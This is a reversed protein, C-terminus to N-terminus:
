RFNLYPPHNQFPQRFGALGTIPLHDPARPGRAQPPPRDAFSHKALALLRPQRASLFTQGGTLFASRCPLIQLVPM